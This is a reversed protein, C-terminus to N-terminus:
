VSFEFDLKKKKIKNQLTSKIKLKSDEETKPIADTIAM